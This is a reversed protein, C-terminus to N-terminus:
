PWAAALDGENSYAHALLRVRAPEAHRHESVQLLHAVCERYRGEDFFKQAEVTLNNDAAERTSKTSAEDRAATVHVDPRIEAPPVNSAPSTIFTSGTISFDLETPIPTPRHAPMDAGSDLLSWARRKRLMAAGPHKLREFMKEPVCLLEIPNVALIGDATLSRELQILIKDVQSPHFYM